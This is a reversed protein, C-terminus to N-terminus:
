RLEPSEAARRPLPCQVESAGARQFDAGLTAAVNEAASRVPDQDFRGVGQVRPVGAARSDAQKHPTDVAPRDTPSTNTHHGSDRDSRLPRRSTPHGHLFCDAAFCRSPPTVWDGSRPRKRLPVGWPGARSAGAKTWPELSSRRRAGLPPRAASALRRRKHCTMAAFPSHDKSLWLSAPGPTRRLLLSSHAPRPGPLPLEQRSRTRTSSPRDSEHEHEHEPRKMGCWTSRVMWRKRRGAVHVGVAEIIQIDVALELVEDEAPLPLEASAYSRMKSGLGAARGQQANGAGWREGIGLTGAVGARASRLPGRGVEVPVVELGYTLAHEAFQTTTGHVELAAPTGPIPATPAVFRWEAAPTGPIPATPAM